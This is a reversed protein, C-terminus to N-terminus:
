QIVINDISITGDRITLSGAVATTGTITTYASDYGGKLTIFRPDGFILVEQFVGAQAQFTNGSATAYAAQISPYDALTEAIRVRAPATLCNNSVAVSPEVYGSFTPAGRHDHLMTKVASLVWADWDAYGRSGHSGGSPCHSLVYQSGAASQHHDARNRAGCNEFACSDVPFAADGLNEIMAISYAM